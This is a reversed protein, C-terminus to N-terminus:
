VKKKAYLKQLAKPVDAAVVGGRAELAARPGELGKLRNIEAQKERALRKDDVVNQQRKRYRKSPKNKGKMKKRSEGKERGEKRASLEAQLAAERRQLQIEEPARRVKGVVNRELTIMEPRLKDLLGRVERERRAKKTEYPDVVFSDYNPEGAGPVLLSSVGASHGVGLVDDYPCFRMSEVVRGEFSHNMYPASAKAELADKWIQVRSNWSVALLGKQSIDLCSAPAASFYSHVEKYTRLDWVRVQADAGATVMHNGDPAVALARVGGRHCLMKVLPTGMNPAWMTVTGNYHGCCTVANAPNQRMAGVRGLKTRHQAVVEGTSTDQFRIMGTKSGSVLLFHYPLFELKCVEVHSRLCHVELGRKDYIYVYKKQAAAFFDENHLAVVDRTLEHAQLEAVLHAHQWEVMALHGKSGAMLMHKGNRTYAVHYPGLHPLELDFAKRSAALDVAEVVAEQRFNWTREVGEVEPELAGAETPLLWKGVKAAAVAAGEYLAETDKLQGKLKKDKIGRVAVADGRKFSAVKARLEKPLKERKTDGKGDEPGVPVAVSAAKKKGM